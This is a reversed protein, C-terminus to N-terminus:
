CLRQINNANIKVYQYLLQINELGQWKSVKQTRDENIQKNTNAYDVIGKCQSNKVLAKITFFCVFLCVFLVTTKIM